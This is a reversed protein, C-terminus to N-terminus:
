SCCTADHSPAANCCRPAEIGIENLSVGALDVEVVARQPDGCYYVDVNPSFGNLYDEVRTVDERDAPTLAAASPKVGAVLLATAALFARRSIPFRAMNLRYLRDLPRPCALPAKVYIM